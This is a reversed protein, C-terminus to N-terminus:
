AFLIVKLITDTKYMCVSKKRIKERAEKASFINVFKNKKDFDPRKALIKM